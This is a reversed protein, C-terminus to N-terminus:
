GRASADGTALANHAAAALLDAKNIVPGEHQHVAALFEEPDKLVAVHWCRYGDRETMGLIVSGDRNIHVERDEPPLITLPSNAPQPRPTLLDAVEVGLVCALNWMNRSSLMRTYGSTYKGLTDAAMGAKLSAARESLGRAKVVAKIRGRIQDEDGETLLLM